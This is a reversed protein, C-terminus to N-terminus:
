AGKQSKSALVANYAANFDECVLSSPDSQPRQCQSPPAGWLRSNKRLKRRQEALVKVEDTWGCRPCTVQLRLWDLKLDAAEPTSPGGKGRRARAADLASEPERPREPLPEIRVSGDPRVEIAVNEAKALEIARKISM